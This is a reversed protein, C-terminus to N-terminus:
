IELNLLKVLFKTITSIKKENGSQSSNKKIGHCEMVRRFKNKIGHSEMVKLSEM